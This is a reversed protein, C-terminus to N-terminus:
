GGQTLLTALRGVSILQLKGCKNFGFFAHVEKGFFDYYQDQPRDFRKVCTPGPVGM